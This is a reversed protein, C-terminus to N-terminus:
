RVDRFPWRRRTPAPTEGKAQAQRTRNQRITTPQVEVGYKKWSRRSELRGIVARFDTDGEKYAESVIM